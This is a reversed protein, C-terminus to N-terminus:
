APTQGGEELARGVRVELLWLESIERERERERGKNWMFTDDYLVRFHLMEEKPNM